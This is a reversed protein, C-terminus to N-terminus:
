IIHCVWIYFCATYFLKEWVLFSTWTDIQLSFCKLFFTFSAIAFYSFVDTGLLVIALLVQSRRKSVDSGLWM